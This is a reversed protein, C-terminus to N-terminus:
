AVLVVLLCVMQQKHSSCNVVPSVPRGPAEIEAHCHMCSGSCICEQSVSAHQKPMLCCVYVVFLSNTTQSQQQQDCAVSAKGSPSLRSLQKFALSGVCCCVLQQKHSSRNIVPSM